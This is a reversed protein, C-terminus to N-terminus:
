ICVCSLPNPHRSGGGDVARDQSIWTRGGHMGSGDDPIGVETVLRAFASPSAVLVDPQGDGNMDGVGAAPGYTRPFTFGHFHAANVDVPGTSRRGFVISTGNNSRVAIDALGGRDVDGVSGIPYGAHVITFGDAGLTNTDVSHPTRSGFVVAVNEPVGTTVALDALGDGNM